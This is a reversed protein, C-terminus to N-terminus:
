AAGETREQAEDRKEFYLLLAREVILSRNPRELKNSEAEIREWLDPRVSIGIAKMTRNSQNQTQVKMTCLM